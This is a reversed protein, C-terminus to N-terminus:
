VSRRRTVATECRVWLVALDYPNCLTLEEPRASTVPRFSARSRRELRSSPTEPGSSFTFPGVQCQCNTRGLPLIVSARRPGGGVGSNPTGGVGAAYTGTALRGRGAYDPRPRKTKDATQARSNLTRQPVSSLIWGACM